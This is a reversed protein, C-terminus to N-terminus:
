LYSTFLEITQKFIKEHSYNLASKLAENGLETIVAPHEFLYRLKESLDISDKPLCHLGNINDLILEKLGGIRSAVVARGCAMAELAVQGFNEYYSPVVVIDNSNMIKSIKENPIPGLLALRSNGIKKLKKRLSSSDPLEGIITLVWKFRKLSNLAELLEYLGKEKVPRGIFLLKFYNISTFYM